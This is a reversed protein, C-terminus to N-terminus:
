EVVLISFGQVYPKKDKTKNPGTTIDFYIKSGIDANKFINNVMASITDGKCAVSVLKGNSKAVLEWSVYSSGNMEYKVLESLLNAKSLQTRSLKFTEKKQSFIVGSILFFVIILFNKM